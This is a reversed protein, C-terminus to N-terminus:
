IVGHCHACMYYIVPGLDEAAMQEVQAVWDQNLDLKWNDGKLRGARYDALLLRAGCVLRSNGVAGFPGGRIVQQQAVKRIVSPIAATAPLTSRRVRHPNKRRVKKRDPMDTKSLANVLTNTDQYKPLSRELMHSPEENFSRIQTANLMWKANTMCKDHYWRECEICYHQTPIPISLSEAHSTM